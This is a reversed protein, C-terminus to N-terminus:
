SNKMVGDQTFTYDNAECAQQFNEMSDDYEIFEYGDKELKKCISVYIDDFATEPEGDVENGEEDSVTIVKSNYHYYHGSQKIDVNYGNWSFSGVFMAGDGQSCSLSYYIKPKDNATIKAEALYDTLRNELYNELFYYDNNEIHKDLAKKKAEESLEDFSYVKIEIIKM